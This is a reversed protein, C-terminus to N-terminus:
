DSHCAGFRLLAFSAPRGSQSALVRAPSRSSACRYTSQEPDDGLTQGGEKPFAGKRTVRGGAKAAIATQRGTNGLKVASGRAKTPGVPSPARRRRRFRRKKNAGGCTFTPEDAETLPANANPYKLSRGSSCCEVLERSGRRQKPPLSLQLALRFVCSWFGDGYYGKARLNTVERRIQENVKKFAWSHNMERIHALEHAM